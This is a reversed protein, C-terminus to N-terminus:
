KLTPEIDWKEKEVMDIWRASPPITTSSSNAGKDRYSHKMQIISPQTESNM